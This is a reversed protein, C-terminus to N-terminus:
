FPLTGATEPRRLADFARQRRRTSAPVGRSWASVCPKEARLMDRDASPLSADIRAQRANDRAVRVAAFTRQLRRQARSRRAMGAGEFRGPRFETVGSPIRGSRPLVAWGTRTGLDLALITRSPPPTVAPAPPISPSALALAPM